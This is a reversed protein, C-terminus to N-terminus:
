PHTRCSPAHTFHSAGNPPEDSPSPTTGPGTRSPGTEAGAHEAPSRPTRLGPNSASAAATPVDMPHSPGDPPRPRPSSRRSATESEPEPHGGAMEPHHAFALSGGTGVAGSERNGTAKRGDANAEQTKRRGSPLQAKRVAPRGAMVGSGLPTTMNRMFLIRGPLAGGKGRPRHHARPRRSDEPRCGGSGLPVTPAITARTHASASVVTSRNAPSRRIPM